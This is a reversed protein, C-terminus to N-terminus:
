VYNKGFESKSIRRSVDRQVPLWMTAMTLNASAPKSASCQYILIGEAVSRKWEM